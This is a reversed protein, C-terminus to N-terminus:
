RAGASDEARQKLRGKRSTVVSMESLAFFANLLILFVVILLEVM